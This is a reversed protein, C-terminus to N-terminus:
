VSLQLGFVEVMELATSTSIISQINKFSTMFAESYVKEQEETKEEPMSKIVNYFNLDNDVMFSLLPEGKKALYTSTNFRELVEIAFNAILLDDKGKLGAFMPVAFIDVDPLEVDKPEIIRANLAAALMNINYIPENLMNLFNAIGDNKAAMAVLTDYKIARPKGSKEAKRRQTRDSM